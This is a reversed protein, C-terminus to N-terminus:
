LEEGKSGMSVLELYRNVAERLEKNEKRIVEDLKRLAFYAGERWGERFERSKGSMQEYNARAEREVEELEEWVYRKM